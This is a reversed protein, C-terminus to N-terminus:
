GVFTQTVGTNRYIGWNNYALIAVGPETVGFDFVSATGGMAQWEFTWQKGDIDFDAPPTVEGAAQTVTVKESLEGAKVTLEASRPESVTNDSATVTVTVPESSAKGSSPEISAIWEADCAIEWDQNSTVTFTATGSVAPVELSTEEVKLEPTELETGDECAVAAAVALM